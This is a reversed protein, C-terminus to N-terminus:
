QLIVLFNYIYTPFTHLIRSPATVQGQPSYSSTLKINIGCNNMHVDVGMCECSQQM